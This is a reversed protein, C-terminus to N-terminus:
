ADCIFLAKTEDRTLVLISFAGLFTGFPIFLCDAGAVFLCFGHHRRARLQFGALVMLVALVVGLGAFLLPVMVFVPVFDAMPLREEDPVGTFVAHMVIAQFVFLTSFLLAFAAVVFHLVGLIDLYQTTKNACTM